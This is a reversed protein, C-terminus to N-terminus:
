APEPTRHGVQTQPGVPGTPLHQAVGTWSAESVGTIERGQSRLQAWGQGLRWGRWNDSLHATYGGAERQMRGQWAGLATGSWM